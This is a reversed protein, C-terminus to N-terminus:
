EGFGEFTTGCEMCEDGKVFVAGHECAENTCYETHCDDCYYDGKIVAWQSDVEIWFEVQDETTWMACEDCGKCNHHSCDGYPFYRTCDKGGCKIKYAEVPILPM